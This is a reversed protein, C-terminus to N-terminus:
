RGFMVAVAVLDAINVRGDGNIDAPGGFESGFARAVSILDVIDVRGDGNTDEPREGPDARVIARDDRVDVQRVLAGGPLQGAVWDAIVRGYVDFQPQLQRQIDREVERLTDRLPGRVAPIADDTNVSLEVTLPEWGLSGVGSAVPTLFVSVRGGSVFFSTHEVGAITHVEALLGDERDGLDLLIELARRDARWRCRAAVFRLGNLQVRAFGFPVFVTREELALPVRVTEASGPLRLIYTNEGTGFSTLDGRAVHMSLSDSLDALAAAGFELDLGRSPPADCGAALGLCAILLAATPTIQQTRTNQARRPRGRRARLGLASREPM